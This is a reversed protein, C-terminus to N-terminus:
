KVPFYINTQWNNSDTVSDPNTIYEEWTPGNVMLGSNDIYVHIATYAKLITRHPGYHTLMVMSQPETVYCKMGEAVPVLAAIPVCAEIDYMPENFKHFVVLQPGTPSLNKLKMFKFLSAYMRELKSNITFPSATDRVSLLVRSKVDYEIINYGNTKKINEIANNIELLGKELDPGILRSSFLGFWRSLPNLGLDSEFSWTVKCKRDSRTFSFASMTKGKEGFDILIQLSKNELASVIELSGNGVNKNKSQWKLGAGIGSTSGNFAIQINSDAQLWPAWIVWNKITNVQNYLLLPSASITKEREVHIKRPLLYGLSVILACICLFILLVRRFIKM